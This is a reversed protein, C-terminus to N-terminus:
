IVEFIEIEKIGFSYEGTLVEKGGIGTDNTYTKGLNSYNYTTSEFPDYVQLDHNAGFTPGHSAGGNYIAQGEQKQKFIQAPLNHPNKITFIFSELSADSLYGNSSSWALPTYGGFISDNKSM